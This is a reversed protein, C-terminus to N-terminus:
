KSQCLKLSRAMLRSVKILLRTASHRIKSGLLFVEAQNFYNGRAVTKAPVPRDNRGDSFYENEAQPKYRAQRDM